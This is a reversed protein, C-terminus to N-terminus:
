LGITGTVGNSTAVGAPSYLVLVQAHFEYGMLNANSPIAIAYDAQGTTTIAFDFVDDSVLQQCGPWGLIALDMPLAYSPPGPDMTNSSGLVFVPVTVSNPLNQVRIRSTSGLRPPEASVGALTPIVGTPGSCGSGFTAYSAPTLTPTEILPRVINAFSETEDNWLWAETGANAGLLQAANEPQTNGNDPQGSAWNTFTM